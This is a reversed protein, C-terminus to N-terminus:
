SSRVSRRYRRLPKIWIWSNGRNFDPADELQEDGRAATHALAGLLAFGALAGAAFAFVDHTHPTGHDHMLLGGTSWVSVTYGYPAASLAVITGFAARLRKDTPSL